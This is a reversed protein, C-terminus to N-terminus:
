PVTGLKVADYGRISGDECEGIEPGRRECFYFQGECYLSKIIIIIIIIITSLSFFYFIFFISLFVLFISVIYLICQGFASM